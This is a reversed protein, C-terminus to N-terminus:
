AFRGYSGALAKRRDDQQGLQRQDHRDRRRQRCLRDSLHDRERLRVGPLESKRRSSGAARGVESALQELSRRRDLEDLDQVYRVDTFAQDVSPSVDRAASGRM